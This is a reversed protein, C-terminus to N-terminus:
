ARPTYQPLKDPREQLRCIWRQHVWADLGRRELGGFQVVDPGVGVLEVAVLLGALQGDEGKIQLTHSRGLQVSQIEGLVRGRPHPVGRRLKAGEHHTFEVEVWM